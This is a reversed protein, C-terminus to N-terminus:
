KRNVVSIFAATIDCFIVIEFKDATFLLSTSVFYKYSSYVVNSIVPSFQNINPEKCRWMTSLNWKKVM